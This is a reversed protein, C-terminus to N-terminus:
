NSSTYRSRPQAHRREIEAIKSSLAKTRETDRSREAFQKYEKLLSLLSDDPMASTFWRRTGLWDGLANLLYARTMKPQYAFRIREVGWQWRAANETRTKYWGRGVIPKDGMNEDVPALSRSLLVEERRGHKTKVRVRRKATRRKLTVECTAIDHYWLESLYLNQDFNEEAGAGTIMIGVDRVSTREHKQKRRRVWRRELQM